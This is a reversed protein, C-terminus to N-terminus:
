LLHFHSRIRANVKDLLDLAESLFIMLKKLEAFKVITSSSIHNEVSNVPQYSSEHSFYYREDARVEM